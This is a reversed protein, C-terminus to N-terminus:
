SKKMEEDASTIPIARRRVVSSINVGTVQYRSEDHNTEPFLHRAEGILNVHSPLFPPKGHFVKTLDLLGVFRHQNILHGVLGYLVGRAQYHLFNACDCESEAGAEVCTWRSPM